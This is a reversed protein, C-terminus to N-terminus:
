TNENERRKSRRGVDGDGWGVVIKDRGDRRKHHRQTAEGVPNREAGVGDRKEVRTNRKCARWNGRGRKGVKTVIIDDGDGLRAEGATSVRGVTRGRGKVM